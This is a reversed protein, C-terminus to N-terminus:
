EPKKVYTVTQEERMEFFKLTVYMDIVESQESYLQTILRVGLFGFDTKYVSIATEYWRRKDPEIESAVCNTFYKQFIDEPIDEKLDLSRQTIDLGNLYKILDQMTSIM